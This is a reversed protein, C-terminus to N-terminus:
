AAKIDAYTTHRNRGHRKAHCLAADAGTLLDNPSAFACTSDRTVVGVSVTITVAEGSAGNITRDRAEAVLRGAAADAEEAGTGPLMLVFQNGRYRAVVDDERINASLLRGIMQLTQDGTKRGQTENIDRLRDIDVLVVSLPWDHELAVAFEGSLATDLSQRTGVNTLGDREQSEPPRRTATANDPEPHHPESQQDLRYLNDVTLADHASTHFREMATPEFLEMEFTAAMVQANAGVAEILEAFRNPLIGLHRHAAKAADVIASNQDCTSWLDSFHSCAAVTRCFGSYEAPLRAASLDHSHSVARVISEPLNWETLLWSGVLRHDTNLQSQEHQSFDEHSCGTQDFNAYADPSIRDIALMGVDQILAAVFLEEADRRGFESALLKAWTACLLTRRWWADQNLTLLETRRVAAVLMVSLALHLTAKLGLVIMAQRLNTTRRRRAYLGSNAIHMIGSTLEADTSIVKAVMAFGADPAGILEIIQAALPPLVPLDACKELRKIIDPTIGGM